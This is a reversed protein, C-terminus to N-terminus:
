TGLVSFGCSQGDDEISLLVPTGDFADAGRGMATVAQVMRGNRGMQEDALRMIMPNPTVWPAAARFAAAIRDEAMAPCLQCALTLLAAPSRSIGAWCYVIMPAAGTWGRGFALLQQVAADDPLILGDTPMHIDHFSLALRADCPAPPIETGPSLLSIAHSPKLATCVTGVYRHSCVVIQM